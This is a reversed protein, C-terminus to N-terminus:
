LPHSSGICGRRFRRPRLTSIPVASRHPSSITRSVPLALHRPIGIGSSAQTGFAFIPLRRQRCATPRCATPAPNFPIGNNPRRRSLPHEGGCRGNRGDALHQDRRRSLSGPALVNGDNRVEDRSRGEHGRENRRGCRNHNRCAWCWRHHWQLPVGLQRVCRYHMAASSFHLDAVAQDGDRDGVTQTQDGDAMM